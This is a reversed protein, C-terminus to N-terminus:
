STGSPLNLATYLQKRYNSGVPIQQGQVEVMDPSLSSIKSINVIYARHVRVFHASSLLAELKKLHLGSLLRTTQTHIYSYDREAKIFTIESYMIKILRKQQRIFVFDPGPMNNEAILPVQQAQRIRAREIAICFREFTVPKLLYDTAYLDFGEAAFNAYATTFIVLPPKNLSRLFEIGNVSPMRIDLFVLDPTQEILAQYAEMANKCTGSLELGPLKGIYSKLIDRAIPEDDVILCKM